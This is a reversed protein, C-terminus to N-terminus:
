RLSKSLARTIPLYNSIFPMIMGILVGMIIASDHLKYETILQGDSFIIYAIIYNILQSFIMGLVIGAVSFSLSQIILIIVLSNKKFGLARLMGFEYTKEEVNSIMLSYILLISLILLIFIAASIMNDLFLKVMLFQQMADALLIQGQSRHSKGLTKYLKNSLRIFYKQIVESNQYIKMRNGVVINTLLSQRELDIADLTQRFVDPLSMNTVNVFAQLAQAQTNNTDNAQSMTENYNREFNLQIQAKTLNQFSSTDMFLTHGIQNSWKGKPNEVSKKLLLELSINFSNVVMPTIIQAIYSSNLVFDDPLGDAFEKFQRVQENDPNLQSLTDAFNKIETANYSLMGGGFAQGYSTNVMSQIYTEIVDTANSSETVNFYQGNTFFDTIFDIHLTLNDGEQLGLGRVTPGTLLVENDKLLPAKLRRGLGYSRETVSNGSVVYAKFSANSNSDNSPNTLRGLLMWRASSGVIEDILECKSQIFSQNLLNVSQLVSAGSGEQENESFFSSQNGYSLPLLTLDADGVTDESLKLFIVPALRFCSQLSTIFGIVLFM